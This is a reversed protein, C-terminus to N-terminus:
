DRPLVTLPIKARVGERVLTIEVKAGAHLLATAARFSRLNPTVKDGVSVIVDGKRIGARAAAGRPTVAVVEVGGERASQFRPVVVGLNGPELQDGRVLGPLASQVLHYPVYFGVGSRAGLREHVHVAIGLLRGELDVVAGGTNSADIAADLQDARGQFRDVASLIGFTATPSRRRLPTGLALVFSGVQRASEPAPTLSPAELGPASILVLRLRMDRGRLRAPIAQGKADIVVLDDLGFVEVNLASTVVLGPGVVVGSRARRLGQAPRILVQSPAAREVANALTRSLAAAPPPPPKPPADQGRALVLFAGLAPVALLLAPRLREPLSRRLGSM